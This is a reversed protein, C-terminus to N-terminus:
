IFVRVQTKLIELERNLDSQFRIYIELKSLYFIAFVFVLSQSRLLYFFSLFWVSKNSINHFVM